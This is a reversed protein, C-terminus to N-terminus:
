LIRLRRTLEIAETRRSVGLKRYISSVQTKITNPSVVLAQAMEPYTQGAVLLHLVRQEQPSLPEIPMHPDAKQPSRPLTKHTTAPLAEKGAPPQREEQEFAVLLRSMYSRSISVPEPSSENGQPAKLLTFLAHKMLLGADLYVRIYGESETLALLRAAVRTAQERKGGQHLAVVSLALFEHATDIDGPRDLHERFRELMEIAQASKQLALSVRVLTLVERKRLPNWTQPSLTTQAAWKAAEEINGQALWWQV